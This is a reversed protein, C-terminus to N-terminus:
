VMVPTTIAAGKPTAIPLWGRSRSTSISLSLVPVHVRMQMLTPQWSATGMQPGVAVAPGNLNPSPPKEKPAALAAIARLSPPSRRNPPTPPTPPTSSLATSTPPASTTALHLSPAMLRSSRRSRGRVSEGAPTAMDAVGATISVPSLLGPSSSPSRRHPSLSTAIGRAPSANRGGGAGGGASPSLSPSTVRGGGASRVSPSARGGGAGADAVLEGDLSARGPPATPEYSGFFFKQLRSLLSESDSSPFEAEGERAVGEGERAVGEGERAVGEGERAVRNARTAPSADGGHMPPHQSPTAARTAKDHYATDPAITARQAVPWLSPLATFSRLSHLFGDAIPAATTASAGPPTATTTLQDGQRAKSLASGEHSSGWDQWWWRWLPVARPSQRARPSARSRASIPPSADDSSCLMHEPLYDRPPPPPMAPVPPLYGMARIRSYEAKPLLPKPGHPLGLWPVEIEESQEADQHHVQLMYRPIMSKPIVAPVVTPAAMLEQISPAAQECEPPEASADAHDHLLAQDGGEGVSPLEPVGVKADDPLPALPADGLSEM